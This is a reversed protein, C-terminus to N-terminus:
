SLVDRSDVVYSLKPLKCNVKTIGSSTEGRSSTKTQSQLRAAEDRELLLEIKVLVHQIEQRFDLAELAEEEIDEAKKLAALIKSNFERFTKDNETLFNKNLRLKVLDEHSLTEAGYLKDIVENATHILKRAPLRNGRIKKTKRVDM